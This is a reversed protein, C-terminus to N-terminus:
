PLDFDLEGQLRPVGGVSLFDLLPEAFGAVGGVFYARGVGEGGGRLPSRVGEGGRYPRGKHDGVRAVVVAWRFGGGRGPRPMVRVEGSPSGRLGRGRQPLSSLPRAGCPAGAPSPPGAEEGWPLLSLHPAEECGGGGMSVLRGRGYPRGKHDGTGVGTPARRSAGAGGVGAVDAGEGHGSGQGVMDGHSGLGNPALGLRLAASGEPLGRLVAEAARLLEKPLSGRTPM